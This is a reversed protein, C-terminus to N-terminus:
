GDRDSGGGDQGGGEEALARQAVRRQSARVGFLILLGILLYPIGFLLRNDDLGILFVIGGVTFILGIAYSFLIASPSM